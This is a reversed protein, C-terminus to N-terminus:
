DRLALSEAHLNHSNAQHKPLPTSSIGLMTPLYIESEKTQDQSEKGGILNGKDTGLYPSKGQRLADQKTRNSHGRKFVQEKRSPPASRPFLLSSSLSIPPTSPPFGTTPIYQIQSSEIKL